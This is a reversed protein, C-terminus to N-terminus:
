ASSEGIRNLHDLGLRGSHIKAWAFRGNEFRIEITQEGTGPGIGFRRAILECFETPTLDQVRKLPDHEPGEGHIAKLHRGTM